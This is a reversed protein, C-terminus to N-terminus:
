LQRVIKKIRDSIRKRKRFINKLSDLFLKGKDSNLTCLEASVFILHQWIQSVSDLLLQLSSKIVGISNFISQNYTTIIVYDVTDLHLYSEKHIFSGNDFNLRRKM